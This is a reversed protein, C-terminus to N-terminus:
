RSSAGRIVGLLSTIEAESDNRESDMDVRRASSPLVSYRVLQLGEEALMEGLLAAHQELLAAANADDTMLSVQVQDGERSIEIQLHGLEATEWQLSIESGAESVRVVLQELVAQSDLPAAVETTPPVEAAASSAFTGLLGEFEAREAQRHRDPRLRDLDRETNLWHVHSM